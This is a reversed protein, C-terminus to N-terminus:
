APWLDRASIRSRWRLGTFFSSSISTNAWHSSRSRSILRGPLSKLSCAEPFIEGVFLAGVEQAIEPFSLSPLRESFGASLQPMEVPMYLGGDPASGSLVADRLSVEPSRRLTSRFKM